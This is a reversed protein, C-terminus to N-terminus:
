PGIPPALLLKYALLHMDVVKNRQRARKQAQRNKERLKEKAIDAKSADPLRYTDTNSTDVDLSDLFDWSPLEPIEQQVDPTLVSNALEM